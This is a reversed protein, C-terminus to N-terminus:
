MSGNLMMHRMKWRPELLSLGLTEGIDGEWGQRGKWMGGSAGLGKGAQQYILMSFSAAETDLRLWEMKGLDAQSHNQLSVGLGVPDVKRGRGM